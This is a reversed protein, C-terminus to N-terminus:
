QEVRGDPTFRVESSEWRIPGNRRDPALIRMALNESALERYGLYSTTLRPNIEVILPEADDGEPVIVDFGVYGSLGPTCECTRRVIDIIRDRAAAGARAPVCGGLYRFLGDDSLRQEVAPFIDIVERAVSAIVAVSLARGRVYPQVIPAGSEGGGEFASRAHNLEDANRVLFTRQSGAGDRPKVVLPFRSGRPAAADPLVTPITGIKQRQLHEYLRLKDSCLAIAAADPGAFRGGARDVIQRRELLIGDFEPAIVLTADCEGALREFVRREHEPRDVPIIEVCQILPEGLRSDWTTVVSWGDIAAADAAIAQLMSRGECLLSSPPVEEVWAGGCVYESIFVRM